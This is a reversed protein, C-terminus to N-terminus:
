SLTVSLIELESLEQRHGQKKHYNVKSKYKLVDIKPGRLHKLLKVKVTAKDLLPKGLEIKDGEWVCLVRDVQFEPKTEDPLRHVIIKDQPKVTFQQGQVEIIAQM